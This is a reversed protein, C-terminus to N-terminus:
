DNSGRREEPYQRWVVGDLEPMKVLKGNVEMQKLFFPTGSVVCQDRLNRIWDIDTKRRDPGSETGCIVMDPDGPGGVLDLNILGLMPEVSIFKLLAPIQHLIQRRKDYQEQNEATVGLWVHPYGNGWDAPLRGAINQPRKTLLQYTLHPTKKIIEWAESRWEDADEIFFDSWSCVFINAPEKLKLPMNFTGKSSRIVTTPDQGYRKKDRYMYCNDCGASVKHCGQWPNWTHQTWEIASNEAM